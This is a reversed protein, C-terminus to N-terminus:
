DPRGTWRESVPAGIRQGPLLLGIAPNM